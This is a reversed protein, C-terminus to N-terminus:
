QCIKLTSKESFSKFREFCRYCDTSSAPEMRCFSSYTLLKVKDFPANSVNPIAANLLFVM